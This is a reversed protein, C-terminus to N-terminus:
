KAPFNKSKGKQLKRLQLQLEAEQQILLEQQEVQKIM